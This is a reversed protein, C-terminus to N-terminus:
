DGRKAEGRQGRSCTFSLAPPNTSPHIPSARQQETKLGGAGFSRSPSELRMDAHTLSRALSAPQTSIHIYWEKEKLSFFFLLLSTYNVCPLSPLLLPSLAAAAAVFSCVVSLLAFCSRVFLLPAEREERKRTKKSRRAAPANGRERGRKTAESKAIM